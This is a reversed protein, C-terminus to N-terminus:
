VGDPEPVPANVMLGVHRPRAGYSQTPAHNVSTYQKFDGTPSVQDYALMVQQSSPHMFTNKEVSHWPHGIADNNGAKTSAPFTHRSSSPMFPSNDPALDVGM